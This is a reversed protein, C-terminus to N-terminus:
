EVEWDPLVHAVFEDWNDAGPWWSSWHGVEADCEQCQITAWVYPTGEGTDANNWAVDGRDIARRCSPCNAKGHEQLFSLFEADAHDSTM